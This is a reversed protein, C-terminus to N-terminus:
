KGASYCVTYIAAAFFGAACWGVAHPHRTGVWVCAEGLAFFVGTIAAALALGQLMLKLAALHRDTRTSM